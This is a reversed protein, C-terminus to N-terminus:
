KVAMNGPLLSKVFEAAVERRSEGADEPGSKAICTDAPVAVRIPLVGAESCICISGNLPNESSTARDHEDAAPTLHVNEGAEKFDPPLETTVSTSGDDRAPKAPVCLLRQGMPSSPMAMM